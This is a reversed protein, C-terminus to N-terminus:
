ECRRWSPVVLGDREHRLREEGIVAGAHVRVDRKPFVAFREEGSVTVRAQALHREKEDASDQFM